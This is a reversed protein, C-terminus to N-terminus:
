SCWRDMIMICVKKKRFRKVSMVASDYMYIYKNEHIMSLM